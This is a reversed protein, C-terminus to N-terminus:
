RDRPEKLTIDLASRDVTSQGAVIVDLKGDELDGTLNEVTPDTLSLDDLSLIRVPVQKLDITFTFLGTISAATACEPILDPLRSLPLSNRRGAAVTNVARDLLVVDDSHCADDVSLTLRLTATKVDRRRLGDDGAPFAHTLGVAVHGRSGVEDLDVARKRLLGDELRALARVVAISRPPIDAADGPHISDPEGPRGDDDGVRDVLIPDGEGGVVITAIPSNMASSELHGKVAIITTEPPLQVPPLHFTGTHSFTVPVSARCGTEFSLCVERLQDDYAAVELLGTLPVGGEIRVTIEVTAPSPLRPITRPAGVVKASLCRYKPHPQPCNGWDIAVDNDLGIAAAIRPVGTLFLFSVVSIVALGSGVRRHM